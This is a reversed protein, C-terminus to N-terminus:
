SDRSSALLRVVMAIIAVAAILLLAWLLWARKRAPDFATLAADGGATQMAGLSAETPLWDRGYKARVQGVLAELPFEARRMSSSGAAVKFPPKGHTLLLWTEPRYDFQLTPIRALDISPEIRWEQRRSSAVPMAENDLQVGAGVLRFATLQGVYTWDRADVERASVSFNAVANNDELYINMREVPVRAPLLYVFARGDRRVFNAKIKSRKHIERAATAPQLLLRLGRLPLGKAGDVVQVRLYRASTPVFEVQRRVLAQGGQRLQAVTAEDVLTRWNQLDDSADVRVQSSFDPANLTLEFEIAEVTREPARVDVLYDTITQEPGHRLTADLQLDGTTSRSVHLHLDAPQSPDPDPLAFWASERWVAPPPGYAAPMPGFALPEDDANFAVVDGLDARTAIRYVSEDLALAFAAECQVPKEDEPALKGIGQGCHGLVPWQRAFDAPEGAAATSALLLSLVMIISKM